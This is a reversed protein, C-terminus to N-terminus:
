PPNVLAANCEGCLVFAWGQEVGGAGAIARIGVNRVTQWSARLRTRLIHMADGTAAQAQLQGLDAHTLDLRRTISADHMDDASEIGTM